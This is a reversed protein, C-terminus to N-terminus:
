CHVRYFKKQPKAEPRKKVMRGQKLGTNALMPGKDAMQSQDEWFKELM